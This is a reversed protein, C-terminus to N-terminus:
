KKTRPRFKNAGLIDRFMQSEIDCVFDFDERTMSNQECLTNVIMERNADPYADFNKVAENKIHAYLQVNDQAVALEAKLDILKNRSKPIM